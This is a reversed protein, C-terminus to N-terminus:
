LDDPPMIMCCTMCESAKCPHLPLHVMQGPANLCPQMPAANRCDQMKPLGVKFRRVVLSRPRVAPLSPSRAAVASRTVTKSNALMM